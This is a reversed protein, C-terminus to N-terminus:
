CTLPKERSTSMGSALAQVSSASAAIRAIRASPCVQAAIPRVRPSDRLVTISLPRRSRAAAGGRMDRGAISLAMESSGLRAGKGAPWQSVQPTKVPSGNGAQVSRRSRGRTGYGPLAEKKFFSAFFKQEISANAGRDGCDGSFLLKKSRKKCFFLIAKETEFGSRLHINAM